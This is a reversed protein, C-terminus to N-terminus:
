RTEQCNSMNDQMCYELTYLTEENKSNNKKNTKRKTDFIKKIVEIQLIFSVFREVNFEHKTKRRVQEDRLRLSFVRVRVNGKEIQETSFILKTEGILVIVNSQEPLTNGLANSKASTSKFLTQHRDWRKTAKRRWSPITEISCHVILRCELHLIISKYFRVLGFRRSITAALM